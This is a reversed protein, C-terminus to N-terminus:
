ENESLKKSLKFYLLAVLSIILFAVVSASAAYGQQARYGEMEFFYNFIYTVMTESGHNPQGRTLVNVLDFEKLGNLVGLMIIIQLMPGLQPITISWLKQREGAGDITAAEYLEHPIRQLGALMLTMNYGMGQWVGILILTTLAAGASELVYIPEDALGSALLLENLIGNEPSLMIRFVVGVVAASILVPFYLAARFFVRGRLSRNLLVAFLLSLPIGIAMGGFTLILTNSVAKWWVEDRLLVAFNDFGVFTARMGDYDFFSYRLIWLLPYLVFAVFLAYPAAIMAYISALEAVRARRLKVKM